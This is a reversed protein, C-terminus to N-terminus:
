LLTPQRPNVVHTTAQIFRVYHTKLFHLQCEKYLLFSKTCLTCRYKNYVIM